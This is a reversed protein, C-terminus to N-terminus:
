GIFEAGNYYCEKIRTRPLYRCHATYASLNAWAKSRFMNHTYGNAGGVPWCAKRRWDTKENFIAKDLFVIDVQTYGNNGCLLDAFGEKDRGGESTALRGALLHRVSECGEYQCM